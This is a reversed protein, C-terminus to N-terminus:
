INSNLSHGICKSPFKSILTWGAHMHKKKKKKKKKKPNDFPDSQYPKEKTHTM